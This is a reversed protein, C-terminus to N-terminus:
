DCLQQYSQQYIDFIKTRIAIPEIVTIASGLSLLNQIIEQEEFRHYNIKLIYDNNECYATKDYNAFLSFAREFANNKPTLKLLLPTTSALQDNFFGELAIHENPPIPTPQIKINSINAINM